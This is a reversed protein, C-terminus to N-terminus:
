MDPTLFEYTRNIIAGKTDVSSRRKLPKCQIQKASPVFGVMINASYINMTM